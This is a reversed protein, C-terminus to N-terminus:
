HAAPDSGTETLNERMKQLVRLATEQDEPSIGSMAQKHVKQGVKKMAELQPTAAPTLFLRKARRDEPDDRREVLGDAELRDVHRALTIPKIDMKAALEAQKVGNSWRLYALVSWMARTIGADQARRDFNWRMQRAVDGILFSVNNKLKSKM